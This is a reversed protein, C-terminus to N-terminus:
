RKALDIGTESPWVVERSSMAPKVTTLTFAYGLGELWGPLFAHNGPLPIVQARNQTDQQPYQQENGTGTDGLPPGIAAMRETTGCEVTVAGRTTM